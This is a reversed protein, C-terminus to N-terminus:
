ANGKDKVTLQQRKAFNMMRQIPILARERIEEDITIENTGSELVSALNRLGNM